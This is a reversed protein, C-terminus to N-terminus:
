IKMPQQLDVDRSLLSLSIEQLSLDATSAAHAIRDGFSGAKM